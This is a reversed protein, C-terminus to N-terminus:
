RTVGELSLQRRLALVARHQLARVAGPQKGLAGAVQEVSMDAVVRMVLVDRQDASLQDLVARLQGVELAPLAVEEAGPVHPVQHGRLAASDIDEMRPARAHARRADVIKHHAITFVWSRFQSETGHFTGLRTFAALFVENVVDDADRIGQMRVYASVAPALWEHLRSFAWGANAQAAALVGDFAGGITM